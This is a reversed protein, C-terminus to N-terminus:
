RGYEKVYRMLVAKFETLKNRSLPIMEGTEMTISRSDFDSVYDLNVIYSRHPKYFSVATLEKEIEKLTKRTMCSGKTTCIRVNVNQAEIYIIEKQHLLREQDGTRILLRMDSALYKEADLLVAALKERNVPKTLFRFANVEYGEAAFEFHSTLFVILVDQGEERLCRATSIGDRPEMEIDLFILDFPLRGGRCRQLLAQGSYFVGILVDLSRYYRELYGKLSEGFVKEDDCVAIRM